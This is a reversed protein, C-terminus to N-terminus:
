GVTVSEGCQEAKSKLRSLAPLPFITVSFKSFNSLEMSIVSIQNMELFCLPKEM